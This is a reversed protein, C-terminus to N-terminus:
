ARRQEALVAALRSALAALKAQVDQGPQPRASRDLACLAGLAAGNEAVVPAGAYFRLQLGTRVLPNNRFRPDRSLDDICTPGSTDLIAHACIATARPTEVLDVGRVAFFRQRDGDIISLAAMSTGLLAQAERVIEAVAPSRFAAEPYRDVEAQRAAEDAPRGAVSFFDLKM